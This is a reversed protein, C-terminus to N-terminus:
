VIKERSIDYAYGVAKWLASDSWKNGDKQLFTDQLFRKTVRRKFEDKCKDVLFAAILNLPGTAKVGDSNLLEAEILKQIYAPVSPQAQAKQNEEQRYEEIMQELEETITFLSEKIAGDKQWNATRRMDALALSLEEVSTYRQDNELLYGTLITNAYDLIEKGFARHNVIRDEEEEQQLM